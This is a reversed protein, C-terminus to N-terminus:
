GLIPKEPFVGSRNLNENSGNKIEDRIKKFGEDIDEPSGYDSLCQKELIIL